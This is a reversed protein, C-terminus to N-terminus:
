PPSVTPIGILCGTPPDELVVLGAEAGDVDSAEVLALDEAGVSVVDLDSVRAEMRMDRVPIEEVTVWVADLGLAVDSHGM